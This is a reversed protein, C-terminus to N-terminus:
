VSLEGRKLLCSPMGPHNGDALSPEVMHCIGRGGELRFGEDPLCGQCLLQAFREDDVAYLCPVFQYLVLLGNAGMDRPDDMAESPVSEKGLLQETLVEEEREALVEVGLSQLGCPGIPQKGFGVFGGDADAGDVCM